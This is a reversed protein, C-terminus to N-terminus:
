LSRVNRRHLVAAIIWTALLGLLWSCVIVPSLFLTSDSLDHLTFMRRVANAGYVPLLLFALLSCIYGGIAGVVSTRIFRTRENADNFSFICCWAILLPLFISVYLYYRGKLLTWVFHNVRLISLIGYAVVVAILVVIFKFIHRTV